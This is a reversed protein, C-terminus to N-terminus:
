QSAKLFRLSRSFQLNLGTGAEVIGFVDIERFIAPRSFYLECIENARSSDVKMRIQVVEKELNIDLIKACRELISFAALCDRYDITVGGALVLVLGKQFIDVNGHRCGYISARLGLIVLLTDVRPGLNATLTGFLNQDVIQGGLEDLLAVEERLLLPVKFATPFELM